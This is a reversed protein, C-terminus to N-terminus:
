RKVISPHKDIKSIACKIRAECVISTIDKSGDVEIVSVGSTEALMAVNSLHVTLKKMLHVKQSYDKAEFDTRNGGRRVRRELRKLAIDVPVRIYLVYHPLSKSYISRLLHTDHQIRIFGGALCWAGLAQLPGQDIIRICGREEYNFRSRALLNVVCYARRLRGLENDTTGRGRILLNSVLMPKTLVSKFLSLLRRAKGAFGTAAAMVHAPRVTEGDQLQMAVSTKGAGPLGIFEILM